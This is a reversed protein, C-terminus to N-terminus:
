FERRFMIEMFSRLNGAAATQPLAEVLPIMGGMVARAKERAAELFGGSELLELLLSFNEPIRPSNWLKMFRPRAAEDDMALIGPLTLRGNYFDRGPDKGAVEKSLTFDHIDDVIQLLIGASRGIRPPDERRHPLPSQGSLAEGVWEFLAGTKRVAVGCYGEVSLNLSGQLFEEQIEGVTMERVAGILSKAADPSVASVEEMGETFSLDGL